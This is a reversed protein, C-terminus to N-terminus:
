ARSRAPWRTTPPPSRTAPAARTWRTATRASSPRARSGTSRSRSRWSGGNCAPWTTRRWRRSPGPARARARTSTSWTRSCRAYGSRTRSSRAPGPRTCRSTTGPPCRPHTAYWAPSVYAHAGSFVVLTPRGAALHRWHPNARAVHGRLTGLPGRTDDVLMPLHTAFPVGADDATIMTAFSQARMLAHCWATDTVEFHRPIYM